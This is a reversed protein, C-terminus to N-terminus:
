QSTHGLAAVHSACNYCLYLLMMPSAARVRGLTKEGINAAGERWRVRADAKWLLFTSSLVRRLRRNLFGLAIVTM